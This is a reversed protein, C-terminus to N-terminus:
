KDGKKYNEEAWLPQLNELSWCKKFNDDNHSTFPLKARPIKHDIHWGKYGYNEWTMGDKFQNELHIKLDQITYGLLDFTPKSKIFGELGRRVLRAVNSHVKHKYYNKLAKEKSYYKSYDQNRKEPNLKYYENLSDAKCRKCRSQFGDKSKSDKCFNELNAEKKQKCKSCMKM